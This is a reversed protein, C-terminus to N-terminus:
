GLLEQEGLLPLLEMYVLEEWIGFYSELLLELVVEVGLM